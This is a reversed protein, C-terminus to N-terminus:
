GILNDISQGFGRGISELSHRDDDHQFPINMLGGQDSRESKLGSRGQLLSQRNTRSSLNILSRYSRGSISGTDLITKSRPVYALPNSSFYSDIRDQYGMDVMSLRPLVLPALHERSTQPPYTTNLHRTARRPSDLGVTELNQFSHSFYRPSRFSDLNNVTSNGAQTRAAAATMKPLITNPTVPNLKTQQRIIHRAPFFKYAKDSNHRPSGNQSKSNGLGIEPSGDLAFDTPLRGKGVRTTTSYFPNAHAGKDHSKLDCKATIKSSLDTVEQERCRQTMETLIQQQKGLRRKEFSNSLRMIATKEPTPLRNKGEKIVQTTERLLNLRSDMEKDALFPPTVADEAGLTQPHFLRM